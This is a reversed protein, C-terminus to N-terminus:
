HDAVTSFMTLIAILIAAGILSVPLATSSFDGWHLTGLGVMPTLFWGGLIAGAIGAIVNLATDQPDGANMVVGALWGIVSGVVLWIMLNM